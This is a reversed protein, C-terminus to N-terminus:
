DRRLVKGGRMVFSVRETVHIDALPDGPVAVIDAEKGAELTGVSRELGLLAAAVSTGARLAAAPTMGHDVMLGFEQANLGHASVGSDTGFAIKVGAAFAKRLATGHAAAAARAKTAIEP